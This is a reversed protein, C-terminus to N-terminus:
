FVPLLHPPTSSLGSFIILGGMLGQSLEQATSQSSPSGSHPQAAGSKPSVTVRVMGKGRSGGEGASREAQISGLPAMCSCQSRCGCMGGKRKLVWRCSVSSLSSASVPPPTRSFLLNLSSEPPLYSSKELVWLTDGPCLISLCSPMVQGPDERPMVQGPDEWPIKAGQIRDTDDAWVM